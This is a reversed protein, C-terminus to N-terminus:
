DAARWPEHESPTIPQQNAERFRQKVFERVKARWEAVAAESIPNVSDLNKVDEPQDSLTVHSEDHDSPSNM